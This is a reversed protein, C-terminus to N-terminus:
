QAETDSDDLDSPDEQKEGSIALLVNSLLYSCAFATLGAGFLLLPTFLNIIVWLMAFHIGLVAITCFLYRASVMFSNRLMSLNDNDFYALM